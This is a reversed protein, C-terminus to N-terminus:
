GKGRTGPTSSQGTPPIKEGVEKVAKELDARWEIMYRALVQLSAAIDEIERVIKSTKFYWCHCERIVMFIVWAMVLYVFLVFWLVWSGPTKHIEHLDQFLRELM